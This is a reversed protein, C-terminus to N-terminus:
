IDLTYVKGLQTDIVTAATEQQLMQKAANVDVRLPKIISSFILLTILDFLLIKGRIM